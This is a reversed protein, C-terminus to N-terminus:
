QRPAVATSSTVVSGSRTSTASSVGPPGLSKAARLRSIRKQLKEREDIKERLSGLEPRLSGSDDGSGTPTALILDIIERAEEFRELGALLRAWDLAFSENSPDARYADGLMKEALDDDHELAAIQGRVHSLHNAIVAHRLSGDATREVSGRAREACTRASDLDRTAVLVMAARILLVPDSKKDLEVAKLAEVAAQRPHAALLALAYEVRLSPDRPLQAARAATFALHEASAGEEAAPRVEVTANDVPHGRRLRM